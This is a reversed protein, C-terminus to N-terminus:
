AKTVLHVFELLASGGGFRAWAEKFSLFDPSPAVEVLREYIRGAEAEDFSLSVVEPLGLNANTENLRKFDEERITVLIFVDPNSALGRVLETWYVNGPRVDVYIYLKAKVVKLHGALAIVVDQAHQFNDLNLVEYSWARPDLHDHLYRYALSSKGQGSAGKLVVTNSSRFAEQIRGLHEERRVDVGALIHQYTAGVGDYFQEALRRRRHEEIEVQELPRVTTYWTRRHTTREQLYQGVSDLTDVIQQYSIRQGRESADYM